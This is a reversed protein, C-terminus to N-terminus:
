FHGFHHGRERRVRPFRSRGTEQIMEFIEEDTSEIDLADMDSRPTM